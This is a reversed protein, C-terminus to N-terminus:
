SGPHASWPEQYPAAMDAIQRLFDARWALPELLEAGPGLWRLLEFVHEQRNEGFTMLVRQDDCPEFTAHRYYWDHQLRDALERTLRVHVPSTRSWQTMARRLWTRGLLGRVDFNGDGAFHENTSEIALVRDARWLREDGDGGARRGVLYWRQRDSFIALPEAMIESPRDRYPSRYTMSVYSGELIGKLFTDIASRETETPSNESAAAPSDSQLVGELAPEVGIIRGANSLLGALHEPMAAILKHEASELAAEYPRVRMARLLTIGLTLSVAEEVTFGLAPLFYGELLRFGGTRGREAYIPIGLASLADVDRYITRPSVEFAAALDTASVAHGGRLRLLIGFLRDNRKMSTDGVEGVATGIGSM